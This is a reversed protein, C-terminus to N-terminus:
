RFKCEIKTKKEVQPITQNTNRSFILRHYQKITERPKGDKLLRGNDLLLARDCLEIVASSSHSVFLITVGDTKLQEIRAFCKRQFLEDGVSLAEDIILIQPDVNIAVAFALRVLMGNSYTKVPQDIFNDIDAFEVITDFRRDTETKSLGLVTANMYVNERGSFEPNFGSGLELLAAIRGNTEVIGNSPHLIGCIVQLITSKGSGNRGVIGVTEGNKITFSVNDLALFERYFRKPTAMTVRQLRPVVFQKLRDRPTDYVEYLKSINSVQVAVADSSM